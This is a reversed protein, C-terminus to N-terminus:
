YRTLRSAVEGVCHTMALLGNQLAGEVYVVHFRAPEDVFDVALAVAYSHVKRAEFELLLRAFVRYRILSHAAVVKLDAGARLEVCVLQAGLAARGLGVRNQNARAGNPELEVRISLMREVAKPELQRGILEREILRRTQNGTWFENLVNSIRVIHVHGISNLGLLSLKNTNSKLPQNNLVIVIRTHIVQLNARIVSRPLNLM